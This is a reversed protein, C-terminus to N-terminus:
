PTRVFNLLNIKLKLRLWPMSPKQCRTCRTLSQLAIIDECAKESPFVTQSETTVEARLNPIVLTCQIYM